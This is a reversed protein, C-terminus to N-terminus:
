KKIEPELLLKGMTYATDVDEVPVRVKIQFTDRSVQKSWYPEPNVADPAISPLRAAVLSDVMMKIAPLGASRVFLYIQKTRDAIVQRSEAGGAYKVAVMNKLCASCAGSDVYRDAIHGHKCPRGTNYKKLGAAAAEKREM